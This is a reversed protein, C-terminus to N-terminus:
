FRYNNQCFVSASAVHRNPGAGGGPPPATKGCVWQVVALLNMMEDCERKEGDKGGERRVGANRCGSQEEPHKRECGTTGRCSSSSAEVKLGTCMSRSTGRRDCGPAETGSVQRHQELDAKNGVLIMPFEDRDKVRLIQRQFKYIEEFSYFLVM